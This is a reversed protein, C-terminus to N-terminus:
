GRASIMRQLRPHVTSILWDLRDRMWEVADGFEGPADGVPPPPFQTPRKFGIRPRGGLEWQELDDGLEVQLARRTCPVLLQRLPRGPTAYRVPMRVPLVLCSTPVPPPSSIARMSPSLAISRKSSLATSALSSVWLRDPAEAAFRREVLDPAPRAQPDRRTTRPGKRRSVRALGAGRMQRGEASLLVTM